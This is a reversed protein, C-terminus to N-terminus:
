GRRRRAGIGALGLVASMLALGLPGLAPIAQPDGSALPIAVGGPDHIVGVTPDDDGAGGDTLTFTASNPGLSAPYEAYAGAIEKWYTAGAPVATPYTVTVTATGACGALTFDVMGHPFRAPLGPPAAIFRADTFVCGAGSVSLSVQGTGTPTTGTHSTVPTFHATVSRDATVAALECTAGSCDGSWDAFLYGPNATATCIGAGGQTVPNPSCNVNGGAIPDATAAITWINPLTSFPVKAVTSFNANVSGDQAVLYLDYDTGATLGPIPFSAAVTAAMAASGHAVVAAGPYGVGARVEAAGPAAAGRMVVIWYGTAAEDSTASLTAETRGIGSVGTDGLVPATTDSYTYVFVTGSATGAYVTMGDPSVLLTDIVRNGQGSAYPGSGSWQDLVPAALAPAALLLLPTLTLHRRRM